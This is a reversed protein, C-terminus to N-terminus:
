ATTTPKCTASSITRRQRLPDNKAIAKESSRGTAFVIAIIGGVLLIGGVISGIILPMRNSKAVPRRRKSSAKEKESRSPKKRPKPAEDTEISFTHECKPCEVESDGDDLTLRLKTDCNPCATKIVPM